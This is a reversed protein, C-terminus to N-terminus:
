LEKLKTIVECLNHYEDKVWEEALEVDDRLIEAAMGDHTLRAKTLQNRRAVVNGFARCFNMCANYLDLDNM